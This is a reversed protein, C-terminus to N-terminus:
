SVQQRLNWLANKVDNNRLSYIMPNLIPIVATYFFAFLKYRTPSYISSPQLYLCIVIGYFLVIVTLHSSCTSFAKRKGATSRIRLITSIIYVYSILTLLFPSLGLIVIETFIVIEVNSTDDCAIKELAVIDCFIHDVTNVNCFSLNSILMIPLLANLFGAAWSGAALLLCVRRSMILSYRLPDCIAAYRDYAMISLILFETIGFSIFFYLQVFCGVFSITGSGTCIIALIKPLTVSIYCIDLSSLNGLFFYMPTHLRPNSYTVTLILLNGVLSTFYISLFVIFFFSRLSPLDSFGLIIFQTPLTRNEHEM